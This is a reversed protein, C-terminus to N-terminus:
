THVSRTQRIMRPPLRAAGPWIAAPHRSSAAPLAGCHACRCGGADAPAAAAAGSALRRWCCCGEMRCCSRLSDATSGASTRLCPLMERLTRCLKNMAQHAHSTFPLLPCHAATGGILVAASRRSSPRVAFWRKKTKGIYRTKGIKQSRNSSHTELQKCAWRSESSM